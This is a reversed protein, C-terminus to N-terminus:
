PSVGRMFVSVLRTRDDPRVEYAWPGTDLGPPPAMSDGEGLWCWIRQIQAEVDGDAIGTVPSEEDLWLNAMRGELGVNSPALLLERFWDFRLRRHMTSLDVARVGLSETGRFDHCQVCGLGGRVGALRRGDDVARPTCAARAADTLPPVSPLAEDILRLTTALQPVNTDGVRPMRVRLYPRVREHGHVAADLVDPRLKRGVADLTPPFRGEDGLEADEDGLFYPAISPHVGGLGDRRHCGYCNRRVMTREVAREAVLADSAITGPDVFASLLAGADEPQLDFRGGQRLCVLVGPRVGALRELTPASAHGPEGREVYGEVQHCRICGFRTFHREGKQALRQDVAFRAPPIPVGASDKRRYELPWHTVRDRALPGRPVGPGEWELELVADGTREVFDLVLAREGAYLEVTTSVTTAAHAGPNDVATSGDITLRADDDSTLHFTYAGDEPVDLWGSFRLAYRDARPAGALDVVLATEREVPVLSDISALPDDGIEDLEFSERVLGPRAEFSGDLRQAQEMLVYAAIAEAEGADLGLSPCHGSPRAAVPDVLYSALGSPLHKDALDAPFPTFVPSFVGPRLPAAADDPAEASGGEIVEEEGLTALEALSLTLDDVSERAGHCVFCGVTHYLARGRELEAVTATEVAAEIPQIDDQRAIYHSLELGVTAREDPALGILEHPHTTGPRLSRPDALFRAIWDPHARDTVGVLRPATSPDLVTRLASEPGHCALCDFRAILEDSRSLLEERGPVSTRDAGAASFTQLAADAGAASPAAPATAAAANGQAAGGTSGSQQASSLVAGGGVSALVFLAGRVHLARRGTRELRPGSM